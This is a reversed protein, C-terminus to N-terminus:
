RNSVHCFTSVLFLAIGIGNSRQASDNLSLRLRLKINSKSHEHDLSEIRCTRRRNAGVPHRCIIPPTCHLNTVDIACAVCFAATSRPKIMPHCETLLGLWTLAWGTAADFSIDDTCMYLFARATRILLPVNVRQALIVVFVSSFQVNRVDVLKDGRILFFRAVLLAAAFRNWRNRRASQVCAAGRLRHPVSWPQLRPSSSARGQRAFEPLETLRRSGAAVFCATHDGANGCLHGLPACAGGAVPEQSQSFPKRHCSKGTPQWRPVRIRM